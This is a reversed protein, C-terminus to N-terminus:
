IMDDQWPVSGANSNYYKTLYDRLVKGDNHTNHGGTVHLPMLELEQRWAGARVAHSTPDEVDVLGHLARPDMDILVNHLICCATVITQVTDTNQLMPSIMCRFRFYPGFM